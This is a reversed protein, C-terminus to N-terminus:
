SNNIESHPSDSVDRPHSGITRVPCCHRIHSVRHCLVCDGDDKGWGTARETTLQCKGIRTDPFGPRLPPLRGPRSLCSRVRLPPSDVDSRDPCSRVCDATLADSSGLTYGAPTQLGARRDIPSEGITICGSPVTYRCWVVRLCRIVAYLTTSSGLTPSSSSQQVCSPPLISIKINLYIANSSRYQHNQSRSSTPPTWNTSEAVM